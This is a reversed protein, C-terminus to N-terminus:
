PDSIFKRFDLAYGTIRQFLYGASGNYTVVGFLLGNQDLDNLLLRIEHEKLNKYESSLNSVTYQYKSLNKEASNDYDTLISNLLSIHIDSLNDVTNIISEKLPSDKLDYKSSNILINRFRNIKETTNTKYLKEITVEFLYKYNDTKLYEKDIKKLIEGKSKENLSVCFDILCKYKKDISKELSYSVLFEGLPGLGYKILTSLLAKVFPSEKLIPEIKELVKNFEELQSPSLPALNIENGNM